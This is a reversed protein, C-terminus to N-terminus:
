PAPFHPLRRWLRRLRYLPGPRDPPDRQAHRYHSRYSLAKHLSYLWHVDRHDQLGRSGGRAAGFRGEFYLYPQHEHAFAARRREFRSIAEGIFTADFTAEAESVRHGRLSLPHKVRERM